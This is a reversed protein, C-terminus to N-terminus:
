SYLTYKPTSTVIIESKKPKAKFETYTLSEQFIYLFFTNCYLLKTQYKPHFPNILSFKLYKNNLGNPNLHQSNELM